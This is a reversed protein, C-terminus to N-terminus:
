DTGLIARLLRNLEVVDKRPLASVLQKMDGFRAELAKDILTRGKRTLRVIRGRRDKPSVRRVVMGEKELRNLCATMAGSTIMAAHILDAPALEYPPGSRRLTSLVDLDTYNMGFPRLVEAARIEMNRGVYILRCATEIALPDLDPRETAFDSVVADVLDPDHNYKPM